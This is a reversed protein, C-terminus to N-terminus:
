AGCPEFDRGRSQVRRVVMLEFTQVPAIFLAWIRCALDLRIYIEGLIDSHIAGAPTGKGNGGLLPTSAGLGLINSVVAAVLLLAVM